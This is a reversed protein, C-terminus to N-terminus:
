SGFTGCHSCPGRFKQFSRRDEPCLFWAPAKAFWQTQKQPSAKISRCLGEQDLLACPCFHAAMFLSPNRSFVFFVNIVIPVDTSSLPLPSRSGLSAFASICVSCRASCVGTSGWGARPPAPTIGRSPRLPPLSLGVPSVGPAGACAPWVQPHPHPAPQSRVARSCMCVPVAPGSCPRLLGPSGGPIPHQSPAGAGPGGCTQSSLNVAASTPGVLRLTGTAGDREHFWGAKM